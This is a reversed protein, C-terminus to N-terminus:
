LSNLGRDVVCSEVKAENDSAKALADTEVMSEIAVVNAAGDRM